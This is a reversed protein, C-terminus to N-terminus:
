KRKLFNDIMKNLSMLEEPTSYSKKNLELITNVLYKTKQLDNGSKLSLKEIFENNLNRTDLYYRSRVKELFFQQVKTEGSFFHAWVPLNPM